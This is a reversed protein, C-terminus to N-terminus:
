YNYWVKSPKAVSCTLEKYFSKKRLDIIYKPNKQDLYRNNCLLEAMSLPPVTFFIVLDNEVRLSFDPEKAHLAALGNLYSAYEHFPKDAERLFFNLKFVYFANFFIFVTLLIKTWFIASSGLKRPEVLCAFMITVYGSVAYAYYANASVTYSFGNASGRMAAIVFTYAISLLALFILFPAFRKTREWGMALLLIAVLAISLAFNIIFIISFKHWDLFFVLRGIRNPLLWHILSPFLASVLWLVSLVPAIFFGAAFRGTINQGPVAFSPYASYAALAQVNFALYACLYLLAPLLALGQRRWLFKEKRKKDVFCLYLFSLLAAIFGNEYFFCGALSCFFLKVLFIRRPQKAYSLLYYFIGLMCAFFLMNCNANAWSVAQANLSFCSFVAVFFFAAAPSTVKRLLRLFLFLVGLHILLGTLHWFFTNTKFLFYETQLVAVYFPRFLLHSTDVATGQPLGYKASAIAWFDDGYFFHSLSPLFILINLVAILTFAFLFNELRCYNQRANRSALFTNISM